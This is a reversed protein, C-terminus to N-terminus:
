IRLREIRMLIMLDNLIRNYSLKYGEQINNSSGNTIDPLLKTDLNVTANKLFQFMKNIEVARKTIFFDVSETIKDFGDKYQETEIEIINKLIKNKLLNQVIGKQPIANLELIKETIKLNENQIDLYNEKRDFFTSKLSDILKSNKHNCKINTETGIIYFKISTNKEFYLVNNISSANKLVGTNQKKINKKEGQTGFSHQLNGESCHIFFIPSCRFSEISIRMDDSFFLDFQLYTIADPFTIGKINGTAFDSEFNLDYEENVLTLTGDFSDKLDNFIDETKGANLYLNKM